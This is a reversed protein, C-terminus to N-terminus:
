QKVPGAIGFITNPVALSDECNSEDKKNAKMDLVGHVGEKPTYIM